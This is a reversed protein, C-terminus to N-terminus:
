GWLKISGDWGCTIVQSEELPHWLCGICPGAKHAELKRLAKGSRWDWIWLRGDADGSIVFQGTPAFGVQCAYGAVIHGSFKKRPHPKVKGAAHYILVNNDLSQLALFKGSPSLSAAPMSYMDPSSIYKIPTPIDFDWVLAKKDDSTSVFREGADVFTVTNVASLHYDYVQLQTGTKADFQYMRRDGSGVIFVHKEQPHWAVCQPVGGPLVSLLCQGTETNWVKVSKDFSVSAFMSGDASFRAQRVGLTHGKYTRKCSRTGYVDWVKLGGDMDGSLLLHGTGPFLDVTNVGKNHGHFTHVLRSPLHCRHDGLDDMDMARKGRPAEVWSRGQYDTQSKGHFKSTCAAADLASVGSAGSPLKAGRATAAAIIEETSLGDTEGAARRREVQKDLIDQPVELNRELRYAIQADTMDGSELASDVGTAAQYALKEHQRRTLEASIGHLQNQQTAVAGLESSGGEASAAAARAAAATYARHQEDWVESELAIARVRAGTESGGKQKEHLTLTNPKANPGQM